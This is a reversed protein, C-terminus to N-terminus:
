PIATTALRRTSVYQSDRKAHTEQMRDATLGFRQYIVTLLDPRNLIQADAYLVFHNHLSSYVIRGRPWEEYEDMAIPSDLGPRDSRLMGGYPEAGSIPCRHDLLVASSGKPQVAWFIGV